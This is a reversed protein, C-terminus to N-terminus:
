KPYKFRIEGRLIVYLLGGALVTPLGYQGILGVLETM